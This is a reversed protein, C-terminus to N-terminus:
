IMVTGGRCCFEVFCSGVGARKCSAMTNGAYTRTYIPSQVCAAKTIDCRRLFKQLTGIWGIELTLTLLIM